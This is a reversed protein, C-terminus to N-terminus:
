GPLAEAHEAEPGCEQEGGREVEEFASVGLGARGATMLSRVLLCVPDMVAPSLGAAPLRSGSGSQPRPAGRERMRYANRGPQCAIDKCSAALVIEFAPTDRTHQAGATPPRCFAVRSGVPNPRKGSPLGVRDAAPNAASRRMARPPRARPTLALYRWTLAQTDATFPRNVRGRLARTRFARATTGGSSERHAWNPPPNCLVRGRLM